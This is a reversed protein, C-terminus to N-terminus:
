FPADFVEKKPFKAESWAEILRRTTDQVEKNAFAKIQWPRWGKQTKQLVLSAREPKIIRYVFHDGQAVRSAYSPLCNRMSTGEHYLQRASNVPWIELKSSKFGPLPAQPFDVQGVSRKMFSSMMLLQEANYLTRESIQGNNYPWVPHIKLDRRYQMLEECLERISIAQVLDSQDSAVKLLRSSLVYAPLHLTDITQGNIHSLHRILRAKQGDKLQHKLHNLLSPHMKTADVKLLIRLSSPTADWGRENLVARWDKKMLALAKSVNLTDNPHRMQLLLLILAPCFRTWDTFKSGNGQALFILDPLISDPYILLAEIVERSISSRWSAAVPHPQTLLGRLRSAVSTAIGSVKFNPCPHFITEGIRVSNDNLAYYDTNM